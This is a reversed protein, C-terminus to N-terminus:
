RNSRAACPPWPGAASSACSTPTAGSGSSEAPASSVASSAARPAGPERPRSGAARPHPRLSPRGRAALFPGHTRAYRAALERLPHDVPETYAAPLGLPLAVGLADRLRGADEAAALHARGALVVEIVRREEILRDLWVAPDALCRAAVEDRTLPGSAACCM